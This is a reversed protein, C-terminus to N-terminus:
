DHIFYLDKKLFKEIYNNLESQNFHLNSKASCVIPEFVKVYNEVDKCFKKTYEVMSMEESAVNISYQKCIELLESIISGDSCFIFGANPTVWTSNWGYHHKQLGDVQKYLYQKVKNPIDKWDNLVLEIYNYPYTYLPMQIKHNQKYLLKFFNNDLEKLQKTDWDLFIVSNFEECGRKVADLKHLFFTDSNELFDEGFETSSESLLKAEFGLSKIYNYNQRGWVYVFDNLKSSKAINHIESRYKGNDTDLDGWFARIFRMELKVLTGM